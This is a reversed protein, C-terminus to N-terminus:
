LIVSGEDEEGSDPLPEDVKISLIHHGPVMALGLVRPEEMRTGTTRSQPQRPFGSGSDSSEPSESKSRAAEREGYNLYEHCSGLIVNCNRDTCLFVGVLTRGDTMEIKMTRNLLRRLKLKGDSPASHDTHPPKKLEPQNESSNGEAESHEMM